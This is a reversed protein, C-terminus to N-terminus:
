TATGDATAKRNGCIAPVAATDVAPRKSLGAQNAIGHLSRVGRVLAGAAVRWRRLTALDVGLLQAAEVLTYTRM